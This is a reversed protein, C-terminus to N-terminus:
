GTIAATPAVPEGDAGCAALACIAVLLVAFRM